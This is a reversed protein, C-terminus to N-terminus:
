NGNLIANALRFATAIGGEGTGSYMEKEYIEGIISSYSLLAATNRKLFRRIFILAIEIGAIHSARRM